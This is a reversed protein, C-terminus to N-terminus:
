PRLEAHGLHSCNAVQGAHSKRNLMASMRRMANNARRARLMNIARQLAPHKRGSDSTHLM